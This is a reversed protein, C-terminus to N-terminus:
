FTHLGVVATDDRLPTDLTQITRLRMEEAMKHLLRLSSRRKDVSAIPKAHVGYLSYDPTKEMLGCDLLLKNTLPM